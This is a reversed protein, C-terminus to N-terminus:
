HINNSAGEFQNVDDSVEWTYAFRLQFTHAVQVTNSEQM